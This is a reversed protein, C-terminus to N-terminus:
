KHKITPSNRRMERLQAWLFIVFTITSIYLIMFAIPGWAHLPPERKVLLRDVLSICELSLLIIEFIGAYFFLRIRWLDFTSSSHFRAFRRSGGQSEKADHFIRFAIEAASLMESTAQAKVDRSFAAEPPLAKSLASWLEIRKHCEELEQRRRAAVGQEKFWTLLLNLYALITTPVAIFMNFYLKLDESSTQPMAVFYKIVFQRNSVSSLVPMYPSQIRCSVAHGHVVAKRMTGQLSRMHERGGVLKLMPRSVKARWARKGLDGPLKGFRGVLRTVDLSCFEPACRDAFLQERASVAGDKRKEPKDKGFPTQM